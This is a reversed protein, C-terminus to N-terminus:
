SFLNKFFGVIGKEEKKKKKGSRGGSLQDYSPRPLGMVPEEEPKPRPKKRSPRSKKKGSAQKKDRKGSRSRKSQKKKKITEPLPLEEPAYGLEEIIEKIDKRDQKSVLSTIRTSNEKVILEARLKYEQVEEPVDYNIVQTVEDIELDAASMEGVILHNVNGTTFREFREQFTKKDLKNHLSVARKGSKRFVRYLRDATRRSATFILVTDNPYHELHAMLTSIKMRPPVNIYYQTLDKTIPSGNSGAQATKEEPTKFGLTNPDTLFKELNKILTDDTNSVTAIRHCKGIIRQSIIEVCDWASISDASDLILYQAERFIIRNEEMLESLREPIAIIIAPGAYLVSKQNSKDESISISASEIGSYKGAGRIWTELENIRESSNTLIIAKTGQRRDQKAIQDLIPILYGTEPQDNRSANVLLDGGDKMLKIMKKQLPSPREIKVDKLGKLIDSSIRLQSFSL